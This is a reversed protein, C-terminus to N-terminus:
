TVHCCGKRREREHLWSIRLITGGLFSDPIALRAEESSQQSVELKLTTLVPFPRQMIAVVKEMEPISHHDVTLECIRDNHELAAIISDLFGLPSFRGGSIVVPLPPWVDIKEWPAGDMCVLRLNLSRPSGFVIRRWQRCVHVLTQWVEITEKKSAFTDPDEDMYFKFISLLIDESLVDIPTV